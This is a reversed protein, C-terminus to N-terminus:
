LSVLKEWPYNSDTFHGHAATPFYQTNRLDLREIIANPRFDFNNKLIDYIHHAHADDVEVQLMVPKEKGFEYAVSIRCEKALGNAVINKAVFRCMYAASRDVKSPDKGSFAGGGHPVIGGYTDVMIKRGTLGTDNQFGGQIFGTDENIVIDRIDIDPVINEMICKNIKRLDADPEHQVNITIKSIFNDSVVVQVKGDPLFYNTNRRLEDLRKALLSAVWYGYPLYNFSNDCAYGYMIGQDGAGGNNVANRLQRSQHSLRNVIHLNSLGTIRRYLSQCYEEVPIEASSNVEGAVFLTDATGLCEIATHSERDFQLYADLLGDSIQDCIKDPHGQLVSEVTYTKNIFGM